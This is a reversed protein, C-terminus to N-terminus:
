ALLRLSDFLDPVFNSRDSLWHRNLFIASLVWDLCWYMIHDISMAVSALVVVDLIELSSDLLIVIHVEELVNVRARALTM